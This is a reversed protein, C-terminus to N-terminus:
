IEDFKPEWFRLIQPDAYNKSIKSKPLTRSGPPSSQVWFNLDRSRFILVNKIM